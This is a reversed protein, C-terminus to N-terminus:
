AQNWDTYLFREIDLLRVPYDKLFQALRRQDYLEVHNNEAHRQTTANFFQNTVCVRKFQVDPHRHEYTAAGAVVDKIADWGLQANECSSTKCQILEGQPRHLAVVDVGHDGRTPTRLVEPFGRQRWLAAVLGEFYDPHMQLMDDLTIRADLALDDSTPIVDALDFDSPSIEGTGNLMDSALERKRNLLEHLKMDFTTFDDAHTVPYYVHVDKTAGIRYARDTAQDEKAPNWHRTYHIVHNAAQLNVGFGVAVPSLIIVGFGPKTQFAKIRKQRSDAAKASAPTDGNIIDPSFNFVQEIYYKLLRQIARFECFIIAKEAHHQILSLIELLWHLKPAKYRYEDLPEPKFAELGHRRPDTCILRLYQLLGLHNKFPTLVDPNNRKRFSDIAHAYLARQHPSLPIRYDQELKQPLDKAVQAKTRRIIQPDIRARLDEVRAKEEDTQAEIPRRYRRGFENLAGLLGPQVFDFLCWLDTLTNEVPTGTCAIKFRVNQKKASRTMENATEIVAGHIHKVPLTHGSGDHWRSVTIAFHPDTLSHHSELVPSASTAPPLELLPLSSAFGSHAQLAYIQDWPILFGDEVPLAFGEDELQELLGPLDPTDLLQATAAVSAVLRQPDHVVTLGDSTWTRYWSLASQHTSKRSFWPFKMM